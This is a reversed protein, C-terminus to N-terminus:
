RVSGRSARRRKEPVRSERLEALKARAAPEGPDIQLITELEIEAEEIREARALTFALNLRPVLYRESLKAGQRFAGIAEEFRELEFLVVGRLNHLDPYKPCIALAADFAELSKVYEESKLWDM